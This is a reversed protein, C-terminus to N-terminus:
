KEMLRKYGPDSRLPAFSINWNIWVPTFWSPISLLKDLTKVALESEGTMTYVIALDQLVGLGYM